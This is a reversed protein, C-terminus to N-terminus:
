EDDSMALDGVRSNAGSLFGYHGRVIGEDDGLIPPGSCGLGLSSSQGSRMASATRHLVRRGDPLLRESRVGM